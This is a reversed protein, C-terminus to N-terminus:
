VHARGIELLNSAEFYLSWRGGVAYDLRFDLQTNPAVWIDYRRDDGIEELYESRYVAALRASVRHNEWGLHASYLRESPRPLTFAAGARDPIWAALRPAHWDANL